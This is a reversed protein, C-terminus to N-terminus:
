GQGHQAAAYFDAVAGDVRAADLIALAGCNEAGQYTRMGLEGALRDARPQDVLAMQEQERDHHSAALAGQCVVDARLEFTEILAPESVADNVEV